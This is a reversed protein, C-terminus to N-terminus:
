DREGQFFVRAAGKSGLWTLFTLRAGTERLREKVESIRVEAPIGTLLFGLSHGRDKRSKRRRTKTKRRVETQETEKTIRQDVEAQSAALEAEELHNWDTLRIEEEGDFVRAGSRERPEMSTLPSKRSVNQQHFITSTEEGLLGAALGM